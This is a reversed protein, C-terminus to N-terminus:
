GNTLAKFVFDVIRKAGPCAARIQEDTCKDITAGYVQTPQANYREYLKYEELAEAKYFPDGNGRYPLIHDPRKCTAVVGIWNDFAGAIHIPASDNSILVPALSVAAILEAISLKSILSTVGPKEWDFRVVGQEDNLEKGVLVVNLGVELLADLWSQWVDSPFTKSPWGRGPHLLVTRRDFLPRMNDVIKKDLPLSIQKQTVPLTCRALQLSAFDTTHCLPHSMYEWSVHDPSRLTQFEVFGKTVQFKEGAKKITIDLHGFLEPWDSILLLNDGKYLHNKVWRV